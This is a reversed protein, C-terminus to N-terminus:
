VNKIRNFTARYNCYTDKIRKLWVTNKGNRLCNLSKLIISNEKEERM